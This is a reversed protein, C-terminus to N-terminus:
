LCTLKFEQKSVEAKRVGLELDQLLLTKNVEKRWHPEAEKILIRPSSDIKLSHFSSRYCRQNLRTNVSKNMWRNSIYLFKVPLSKM